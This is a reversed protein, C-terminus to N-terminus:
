GPEQSPTVIKLVFNMRNQHSHFTKITIYSSYTWHKTWAFSQRRPFKEKMMRLGSCHIEMEKSFNPDSIRESSIEKYRSAACSAATM